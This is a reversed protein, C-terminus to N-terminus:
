LEQLQKELQEHKLEPPPTTTAGGDLPVGPPM